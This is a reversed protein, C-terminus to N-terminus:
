FIYFRVASNFVFDVGNNTMQSTREKVLTYFPGMDFTVSLRRLLYYEIGGYIGFSEGNSSYEHASSYGGTKLASYIYAGEVGVYYQLKQDTRFHRDLCLGMAYTRLDGFDSATKDTLVRIEVSWVQKFGYDLEGGIYDVGVAFKRKLDPQDTSAPSSGAFAQACLLFSLAVLIFLSPTKNGVM